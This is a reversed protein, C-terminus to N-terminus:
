DEREFWSDVQRQLSQTIVLHAPEMMRDFASVGGIGPKPKTGAWPAESDFVVSQDARRRSRHGASDLLQIVVVYAVLYIDVSKIGANSLHDSSKLFSSKLNLIEATKIM